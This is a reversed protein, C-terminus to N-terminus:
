FIIISVINNKNFIFIIISGIISERVSSAKLYFVYLIKYIKSKQSANFIGRFRRSLISSIIMLFRNKEKTDAYRLTTFLNCDSM